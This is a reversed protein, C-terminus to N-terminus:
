DCGNDVVDTPQNCTTHDDLWRGWQWSRLPAVGAEVRYEVQRTIVGGDAAAAPIRSCGASWHHEHELPRPVATVIRLASLPAPHRETTVTVEVNLVWHTGHTTSSVAARYWDVRSQKTIRTTVVLEQGDDVLTDVTCWQEGRYRFYTLLYPYKYLAILLLRM